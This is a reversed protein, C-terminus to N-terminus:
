AAASVAKIMMPSMITGRKLKKEEMNLEPLVTGMDVKKAFLFFKNERKTEIDAKLAEIAKVFEEDEDVAAKLEATNLLVINKNVARSIVIQSNLYAIENTDLEEKNLLETIKNKSVEDSKALTILADRITGLLIREVAAEEPSLQSVTVKEVAKYYGLMIEKDSLNAVGLAAKMAELNPYIKLM